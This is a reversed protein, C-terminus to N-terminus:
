HRHLALTPISIYMFIDQYSVFHKTKILLYFRKMIVDFANEANNQLITTTCQKTVKHHWVDAKMDNAYKHLCM